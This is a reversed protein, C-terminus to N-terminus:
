EYTLGEKTLEEKFDKVCDIHITVPSPQGINQQLWTFGKDTLPTITAKLGRNPIRIHIDSTPKIGTQESQTTMITM